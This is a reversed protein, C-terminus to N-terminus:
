RGAGDRDITPEAAGFWLHPSIRALTKVGIGKVQTLDAPRNFVATRREPDKAANMRSERFAVIRGAMAEGIAPLQALEFWTATNPDVGTRVRAVAAVDVGLPWSVRRSDNTGAIFIGVLLVILVGCAAAHRGTPSLGARDSRAAPGDPTPAVDTMSRQKVSFLRV